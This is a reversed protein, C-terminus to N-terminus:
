YFRMGIREFLCNKEEFAMNKLTCDFSEVSMYVKGLCLIRLRVQIRLKDVTQIREATKVDKTAGM